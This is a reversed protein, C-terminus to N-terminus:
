YVQIQIFIFLSVQVILNNVIHGLMYAYKELFLKDDINKMLDILILTRNILLINHNDGYKSKSLDSVGNLDILIDILHEYSDAMEFNTRNDSLFSSVSHNSQSNFSKTLLRSSKLPSKFIRLNEEQKSIVNLDIKSFRLKKTEENTQPLTKVNQKKIIVNRFFILDDKQEIVYQPIGITFSSLLIPRLTELNITVKMLGCFDLWENLFSM